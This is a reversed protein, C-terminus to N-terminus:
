LALYRHDSWPTQKTSASLQSALCAEEEQGYPCCSAHEETDLVSFLSIWATASPMKKLDSISPAELQLRRCRNEHVISRLSHGSSGSSSEEERDRETISGHKEAPGQM